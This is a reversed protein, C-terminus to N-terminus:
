FKKRSDLLLTIPGDNVLSVEMMAGFQGTEVHIEMGRLEEVYQRYLNLAEDPPAADKYSPRRGKRADGLLTFQPVVLASGAIDILSLNMRREHDPFVRLHATKDRMYQVDELRDDQAAGLLILLGREIEGVIREEVTVSAQSVRQVVARM